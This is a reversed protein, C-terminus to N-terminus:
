AVLGPALTVRSTAFRMNADATNVEDVAARLLGKWLAIREDNRIFPEAEALAGYLYVDPHGELLWNSQFGESLPTLGQNYVITVDVPGSAPILYLTKASIMYGRVTSGSPERTLQYYDAASTANLVRALSGSGAKVARIQRLDSPLTLRGQDDTSGLAILENETSLLVRQLKAEALRVFDKIQGTLDPRALYDAIAAQLETYNAFPM